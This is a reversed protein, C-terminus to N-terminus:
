ENVSNRRYLYETGPTRRYHDRLIDQRLQDHDVWSYEDPAQDVWSSDAVEQEHASREADIYARLSSVLGVPQDGVWDGDTDVGLAPPAYPNFENEANGWAFEGLTRFIPRAYRKVAPWVGKVVPEAAKLAPGALGAAWGTILSQPDVMSAASGGLQESMAASPTRNTVRELSKNYDAITRNVEDDVYEQHADRWGKYHDMWSYQPYRIKDVAAAIPSTVVADLGDRIANGIPAYSTYIGRLAGDMFATGHDQLSEGLERPAVPKAVKAQPIPSKKPMDAYAGWSTAPNSPYDGFGQAIKRLNNYTTQEM